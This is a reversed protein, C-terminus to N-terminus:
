RTIFTPTTVICGRFVLTSSRIPEFKLLITPKTALMGRVSFRPSSHLLLLVLAYLGTARVTLAGSELDPPHPNLDRRAQWQARVPRAWRSVGPAPTRDPSLLRSRLSPRHVGGRAM